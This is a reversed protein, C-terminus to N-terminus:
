SALLACRPEDKEQMSMRVAKYKLSAFISSDLPSL